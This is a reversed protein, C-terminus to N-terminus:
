RGSGKRADQEIQRAFRELMTRMSTGSTFVRVILKDPHRARGLLFRLCALGCAHRFHAGRRFHSRGDVIERTARDHLELAVGATGRRGGRMMRGCGDCKVGVLKRWPRPKPTLVKREYIYSM